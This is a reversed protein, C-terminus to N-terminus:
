NENEFTKTAKEKIKAIEKQKNIFDEYGKMSQKGKTTVEFQRKWGKPKIAKKKKIIWGAQEHKKLREILNKPAMGVKEALQSTGLNNNKDIIHIIFWDVGDILIWEGKDKMYANEM